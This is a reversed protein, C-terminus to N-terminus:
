QAASKKDPYLLAYTASGAFPEVLTDRNTQSVAPSVEVQKRLIRVDTKTEVNIRGEM